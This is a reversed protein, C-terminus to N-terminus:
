KKTTAGSKDATAGKKAAAKGGKPKKV